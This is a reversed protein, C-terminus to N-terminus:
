VNEQAESILNQRCYSGTLNLQKNYQGSHQRLM